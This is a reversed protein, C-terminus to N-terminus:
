REAHMGCRQVLNQLPAAGARGLPPRRGKVEITDIADRSGAAVERPERYESRENRALRFGLINVHGDDHVGREVRRM